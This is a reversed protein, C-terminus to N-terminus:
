TCDFIQPPKKCQERLLSSILSPPSHLVQFVRTFSAVRLISSQFKLVGTIAEGKDNGAFQRPNNGIWEM